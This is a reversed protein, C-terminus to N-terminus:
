VHLKRNTTMGSILMKLTEAICVNLSDLEQCCSNPKNDSLHERSKRVDIKQCYLVGHQRSNLWFSERFGGIQLRKEDNRM